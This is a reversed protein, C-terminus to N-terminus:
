EFLSRGDMSSDFTCAAESIEENVVVIDPTNALVHSFPESSNCNQFKSPKVCSHKINKCCILFPKVCMCVCV